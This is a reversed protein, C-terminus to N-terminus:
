IEVLKPAALDYAIKLNDDLEKALNSVKQGMKKKKVPNLLWLMEKVFQSLYKLLKSVFEISLKM